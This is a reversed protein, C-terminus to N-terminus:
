KSSRGIQFLERLQGYLLFNLQRRRVKLTKEFFFVFLLNRCIDKLWTHLSEAIAGVALKITQRHYPVNLLLASGKRHTSYKIHSISKFYVVKSSIFTLTQNTCNIFAYLGKRHTHPIKCLKNEFSKKCLQKICNKTM